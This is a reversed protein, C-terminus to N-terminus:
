FFSHKIPGIGQCVSGTRTHYSTLNHLHPLSLRECAPKRATFSSKSSSDMPLLLAAAPISSVPLSTSQLSPVHHPKHRGNRGAVVMAVAVGSSAAEFLTIHLFRFDFADGMVDVVNLSTEAPPITLPHCCIALKYFKVQSDFPQGTCNACHFVPSQFRCKRGQLVLSASTLLTDLRPDHM